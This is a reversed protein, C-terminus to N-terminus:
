DETPIDPFLCAAVHTLPDALVAHWAEVDGILEPAWRGAPIPLVDRAAKSGVAAAIRECLGIRDALESPQYRTVRGDLTVAAGSGGRHVAARFMTHTRGARALVIAYPAPPPTLCLERLRPRDARVRDGGHMVCLALREAHTPTLVWSWMWPKGAPSPGETATMAIQCGACITGTAPRALSDIATFSDPLIYSESAPASCFMCRQSGTCDLGHSLALLHTASYIQPPVRAIM